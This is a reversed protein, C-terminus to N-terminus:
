IDGERLALPQNAIGGLVLNRHVGMVSYEIRLTENSALEIVSLNLGVHLMEGELDDVLAALGVNLDLVAALGLLEYTGEVEASNNAHHSIYKTV